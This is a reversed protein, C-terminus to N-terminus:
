DHDEGCVSGENSSPQWALLEDVEKVLNDFEDLLPKSHHNMGPLVQLFDEMQDTLSDGDTDSSYPLRSEELCAQLYPTDEDELTHEQVGSEGLKLM